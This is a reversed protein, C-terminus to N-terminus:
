ARTEGARLTLHRSGNHLRDAAVIALRGFVM